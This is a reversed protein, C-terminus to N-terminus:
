PLTKEEGRELTLPQGDVEAKIEGEQVELCRVLVSRGRLKLTKQAGAAFEEGNIVALRDQGIAMTGSFKLGLPLPRPGAVLPAAPVVAPLPALSAGADFMEATSSKVWNLVYDTGGEHEIAILDKIKGNTYPNELIHQQMSPLKEQQMLKYATLECIAEVTDGDIHHGAPRNENIWLHTYEHAAVAEMEERLRGSLMVVEHTWAGDGAPRSSAFGFKHLGNGQGKESWYDVDFLNVTVDANKLAFPRGYLDVVEDRIQAFLDKAQDPTLIVNPKDFRCIFRGDGTKIHEDGAQVPLGCISCHDPLKECDECIAGRPHLWIRGTLPGKGCVICVYNTPEASAVLAAALVLVLPFMKRM